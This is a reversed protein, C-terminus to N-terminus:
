PLLECMKIPSSLLTGELKTISSKIIQTVQSTFTIDISLMVFGSYEARYKARMKVVFISSWRVQKKCTWINRCRIPRTLFNVLLKCNIKSVTMSDVTTSTCTISRQNWKVNIHSWSFNELSTQWMFMSYITSPPIFV